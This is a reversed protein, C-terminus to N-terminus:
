SASGMGWEAAQRISTIASCLAELALRTEPSSRNLDGEKLPTIIRQFANGTVLFASDATIAYGPCMYRDDSLKEVLPQVIDGDNWSGPCNMRVWVLTGDVGYCFVGNYLANQRDPHTPSHVRYNKGDVFGWVNQLLPEKLAVLSAWEQQQNHSPFSIRADQMQSLTIRLAIEAKRM